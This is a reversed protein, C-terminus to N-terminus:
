FMGALIRSILVDGIVFPVVTAVTGMVVMEGGSFFWNRGTFKTKWVGIIFLLVLTIFSAILIDVDPIVTVFFAALPVSGGLLFAAFMTLAVKSPREFREEVLGLEERLMTEVWTKKEGTLRGIIMDLEKETFKAKKCYIQRLEEREVDPLEEIEDKEKKIQSRLYEIESKSSIYAGVAMSIAGAIVGSFGAILVSLLTLNGGTVGALLALTSVSGDNIGFVIERMNVKSHWKEGEEIAKKAREVVEKRSLNPM